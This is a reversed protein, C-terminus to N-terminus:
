IARGQAAGRPGTRRVVSHLGAVCVPRFDARLLESCWISVALRRPSPRGPLHLRRDGSHRCGVPLCFLSESSPVLLRLSRDCARAGVPALCIERSRVIGGFLSNSIAEFRVPVHDCISHNPIPALGERGPAFM